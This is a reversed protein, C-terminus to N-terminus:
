NEKKGIKSKLWQWLKELLNIRSKIELMHRYETQKKHFKREIRDILEPRMFSIRELRLAVGLPLETGKDESSEVQLYRYDRFFQIVLTVDDPDLFHLNKNLLDFFKENNERVTQTIHENSVEIMKKIDEGSVNAKGSYEETGAKNIKRSRDFADRNQAVLCYAPGYLQLQHELFEKKRVWRERRFQLFYELVAVVIGAGLGGAFM